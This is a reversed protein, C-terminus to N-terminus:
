SLYNLTFHANGHDDIEMILFSPKRGEQRPFSISGPNVLWVAGEMELLPHHTHGFMLINAGNWDAVERLTDYQYRHGHTMLISYKGVQILKERDLATLIDNNGAIIETRCGAIQEIYDTDGLVDGLHLLMDIPKVKNLANELNKCKGHTDSVILIKM